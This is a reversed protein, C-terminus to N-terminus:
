VMEDGLEGETKKKCWSTGYYVRNKEGVIREDELADDWGKICGKM